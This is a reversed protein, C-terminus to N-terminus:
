VVVKLYQGHYVLDVKGSRLRLLDLFLYFLDDAYGGHVRGLYGGFEPYVDLSDRLVNHRMDRRGRAVGGRREPRQYEVANVVAEHSDYYVHANEVALQAAIRVNAEHRAARFVSDHFRPM